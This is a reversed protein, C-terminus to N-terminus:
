IAREMVCGVRCGVLSSHTMTAIEKSTTNSKQATWDARCVERSRPAIVSFMLMKTAEEVMPTATILTRRCSKSSVEHEVMSSHGRMNSGGPSSGPVEHKHPMYNWRCEDCRGFSSHCPNQFVEHESNCRVCKRSITSPEISQALTTRM